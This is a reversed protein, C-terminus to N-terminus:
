DILFSAHLECCMLPQLVFPFHQLPVHTAILNLWHSTLSVIQVDSDDSSVSVDSVDSDSESGGEGGEGRKPHHDVEFSSRERFDGGELDDEVIRGRAKKKKGMVRSGEIEATYRDEKSSRPHKERDGDRSSRGTENAFSVGHQGKPPLPLGYTRSFKANEEEEILQQQHNQYEYQEYLQTEKHKQQLYQDQYPQQQYPNYRNDDIFEDKQQRFASTVDDQLM